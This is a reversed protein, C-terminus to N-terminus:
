SSVKRFHYLRNNKKELSFLWFVAYITQTLLAWFVFVSKIPTWEIDKIKIKYISNLSISVCNIDYVIM